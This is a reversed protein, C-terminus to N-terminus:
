GIKAMLERIRVQERATPGFRQATQLEKKAEIKDGKQYLAMALHLHFTPNSPVRAVLERLLRLGDDTLNKKVFILGVTDIVNPDDPRKTRAREALTLAQDLDVGEDAKAYAINNLAIANDPQMKLVEEYAKRSEDQKGNTEYLL